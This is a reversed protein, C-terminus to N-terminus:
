HSIGNPSHYSLFAIGISNSNIYRNKGQSRSKTQKFVDANNQIGDYRKLRAESKASKFSV